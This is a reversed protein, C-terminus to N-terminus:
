GCGQVQMCNHHHPSVAPPCAPSVYKYKHCPNAVGSIKTNSNTVFKQMRLTQKFKHCTTLLTCNQTLILPRWGRRNAQWCSKVLFGKWLDVVVALTLTITTFHYCLFCDGFLLLLLIGLEIALLKGLSLWIRKHSIPTTSKNFYLKLLHPHYPSSFFCPEWLLPHCRWFWM